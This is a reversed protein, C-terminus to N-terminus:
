FHIILDDQSTVKWLVGKKENVSCLCLYLYFIVQDEFYKQQLDIRNQGSSFGWDRFCHRAHALCKIFIQQM